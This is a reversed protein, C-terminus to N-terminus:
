DSDAEPASQRTPPEMEGYLVFVSPAVAVYFRECGNCKAISYRAIPRHGCPCRVMAFHGDEDDGDEVIAARPIERLRDPQSRSAIEAYISIPIQRPQKRGLRDHELLGNM